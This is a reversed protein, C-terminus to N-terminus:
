QINAYLADIAGLKDGSRIADLIRKHERYSEMIDGHRTYQMMMRMAIPQWLTFIDKDDHSQIIAQHFRLDSDTLADVDNNLCAAQIDALIAEWRAIDTETIRAFISDLVFTEIARRLQVVLPRVEVSPNQAVRAGKNPELVLLGQQTLQRFAERVPGRSVGFRQSLDAERLPDGPKLKNSLVEQRLRAAIQEPLTRYIEITTM